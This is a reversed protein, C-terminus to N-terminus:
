SSSIPLHTSQHSLLPQYLLSSPTHVDICSHLATFLPTSPVRHITYNLTNLTPQSIHGPQPASLGSNPPASHQPPIHKKHRARCNQFWVQIVRRSLGTLEALKQLTQADPNNDQAFQTQMIQLQDTTFSTRARKPPKQNVEYEEPCFTKGKAVAGKLKDLVSNYHVRCLVKQGMLAFEDGTSLQRKCTFCSFCALHYVNGKARRVWDTSRVTEWCCSCLTRYRRFYDLKCFVEKGRIYCSAHAGLTTQCVTCSLCQAHWCLENVKLLFRDLIDGKCRACVAKCQLADSTMTQPLASPSNPDPRDTRVESSRMYIDRAVESGKRTFDESHNKSMATFACRIQSTERRFAAKLHAREMGCVDDVRTKV